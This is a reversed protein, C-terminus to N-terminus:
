HVLQQCIFFARYMCAHFFSKFYLRIWSFFQCVGAGPVTKSFETIENTGDYNICSITKGIIDPIVTVNIQSSYNSGEVGLSRAVINGNNCVGFTGDDDGYSSHLLTIEGSSCDFATGTWVTAGGLNGIVTCSYTLTDGICACGSSSGSGAFFFRLFM